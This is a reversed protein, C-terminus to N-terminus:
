QHMQNDEPQNEHVLGRAFDDGHSLSPSIEPQSESPSCGREILEAKALLLEAEALKIEAQARLRDGEASRADAQLMSFDKMIILEEDDQLPKNGISDSGAGRVDRDIKFVVQSIGEAGNAQPSNLGSVVLTATISMPLQDVVVSHKVPPAVLSSPTDVRKTTSQCASLSPDHYQPRASAASRANAALLTANNTIEQGSRKRSRTVGATIPVVIFLAVIAGVAAIGVYIGKPTRIFDYVYGLYPIFLDIEGVVTEYAVRTGRSAPHMDGLVTLVKQERDNTLVRSATINSGSDLEYAVVSGEEIGAPEVEAIYALDGQKLEPSMNDSAISYPTLGLFRVGFLAIIIAISVAVIIVSLAAWAKFLLGGGQKKKQKREKM